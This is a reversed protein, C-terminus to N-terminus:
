ILSTRARSTNKILKQFHGEEEKSYKGGIVYAIHTWRVYDVDFLM